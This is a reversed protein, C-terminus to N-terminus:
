LPTGAIDQKDPTFHYVVTHGALSSCMFILKLSGRACHMLHYCKHKIMYMTGKWIFYIFFLFLFVRFEREELVTQKHRYAWM